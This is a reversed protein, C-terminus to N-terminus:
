IEDRRFLSLRFIFSKEYFVLICNDCSNNGDYNRTNYGSEYPIKNRSYIYLISNRLQLSIRGICRVYNCPDIAINACQFRFLFGKVTQWIPYIEQSISDIRITGLCINYPIKCFQMTMSCNVFQFIQESLM